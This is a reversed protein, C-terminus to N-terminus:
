AGPHALLDAALAFGFLVILWRLVDLPLRRAVAPGVRSGALMGLGLPLAASWHVPGFLVFVAASAVVGAGILMNKLANAGILDGDVLVLLLTLTM